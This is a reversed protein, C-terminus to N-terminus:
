NVNANTVPRTGFINFLQAWVQCFTGLSSLIHGFKVTIPIHALHRVQQVQLRIPYSLM